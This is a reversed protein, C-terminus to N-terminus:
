KNILKEVVILQIKNELTSEIDRIIDDIFKRKSIKMNSEMNLLRMSKDAFVCFIKYKSTKSM